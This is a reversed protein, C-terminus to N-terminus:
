MYKMLMPCKKKKPTAKKLLKPSKQKVPPQLIPLPMLLKKEKLKLPHSLKLVKLTLTLPLEQKEKLMEGTARVTDVKLSKEEEEPEAREKMLTTQDLLEQMDKINEQGPTKSSHNMSKPKMLTLKAKVMRLTDKAEAEEKEEAEIHVKKVKLEPSEEAEIPAETEETHAEKEKPEPSEKAEILVEPSVKKERLEPNEPNEEKVEAETLVEKEKPSLKVEEETDAKKAKVETAESNAEAKAEAKAEVAAEKAAEPVESPRTTMLSLKLTEVKPSHKNTEPATMSLPKHSLKFKSRLKPRSRRPNFKLKLSSKQM